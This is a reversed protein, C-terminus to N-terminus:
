TRTTVLASALAERVTAIVLEPADVVESYTFQLVVFGSLQLRNMRQANVMMQGVTRHWRYGLLEVVLRTGPFRADVRILSAGRRGLVQQTVPRPLCNEASLELFRRELWSHGGRTIESSELAALMSRVGNRGSARVKALRGHM